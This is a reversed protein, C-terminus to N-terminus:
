RTVHDYEYADSELSGGARSRLCELLAGKEVVVHWGITLRPPLTIGMGAAFNVVSAAEWPLHCGPEACCYRRGALFTVTVDM